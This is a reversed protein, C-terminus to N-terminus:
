ILKILISADWSSISFYVYCLLLFSNVSMYSGVSMYPKVESSVKSNSGFSWIIMLRVVFCHFYWSGFSSSILTLFFLSFSTSQIYPDRQIRTSSPLLAILIFIYYLCSFHRGPNLKKIYVGHESLSFHKEKGLLILHIGYANVHRKEDFITINM